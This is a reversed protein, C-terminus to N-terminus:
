PLWHRGTYRLFASCVFFTRSVVVTPGTVRMGVVALFNIVNVVFSIVPFRSSDVMGTLCTLSCFEGCLSALKSGICGISRWGSNFAPFILVPEVGSVIFFHCHRTQLGVNLSSIGRRWDLAAVSLGFVVFVIKGGNGSFKRCCDKFANSSNKLNSFIVLFLVISFIWIVWLGASYCVFSKSGCVEGSLSVEGWFDPDVVSVNQFFSILLSGTGHRLLQWFLLSFGFFCVVVYRGNKSIIVVNRRDCFCSWLDIFLKQGIFVRFVEVHWRGGRYYEFLFFVSSGEVYPFHGFYLGSNIICITDTCDKLFFLVFVFM